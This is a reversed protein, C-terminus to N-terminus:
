LESNEKFVEYIAPFLYKVHTSTHQCVVRTRKKEIVRYADGKATKFCDGVQLDGVLMVNDSDAVGVDYRRLAKFLHVDGCSSAAPNQAYRELAQWVDNPFVGLPGFRHLLGSFSEKWEKGHPAVSRGFRIHTELHAIEHLLTVLFHFPNLNGNVTITHPKGRSAPSYDGYKTKRERRIKLHIVHRHLYDLIPAVAPSPIFESLVGLEVEKAM